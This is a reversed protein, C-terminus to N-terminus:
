KGMGKKVVDRVADFVMSGMTGAADASEVVFKKAAKGASKAEPVGVVEDVSKLPQQNKDIMNKAMKINNAM